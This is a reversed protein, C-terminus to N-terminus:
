PEFTVSLTGSGSNQYMLDFINAATQLWKARDKISWETEPEPLKALLGQIFPHHHDGGGGGAGGKAGHRQEHPKEQHPDRAQTPGSNPPIVLRDNGFEFFGAFKASRQFAQRAKDAQKPSVGLAIMERELGPNPPLTGGRFKDYIAKYLPVQLFAEVKAARQQQPDVVRLGLATLTVKGREYGILGFQKACIMRQRFGGGQAAQKLHAALQDWECGSGGVEHVGTAVEVSNEEDVYPFEITSQVRPVAPQKDAIAEVKNEAEM